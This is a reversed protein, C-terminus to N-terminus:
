NYIFLNLYNIFKRLNFFLFVHRPTFLIFIYLPSTDIIEKVFFSLFCKTFIKYVVIMGDDLSDKNEKSPEIYKIDNLSLFNWLGM